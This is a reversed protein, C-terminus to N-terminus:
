PAKPPWQGIEKYYKEAGPHYPTANAEAMHDPKFSRITPAAKVYEDKKERIAKVTKYVVDDPMGAHTVLYVSTETAVVRGKVEPMSPDPTLTVLRMPPMLKKMAAVAAPTDVLSVLRTGGRSALNAAAERSPGIGPTVASVDVKGEGLARIGMVYNPVPFPKMDALSLGATALMAQINPVIASQATYETPMRLGKIDKLEKVPSDNPVMIGFLVQFVVTVVRLNKAPPRGKYDGTAEYAPGTDVVHLVAFDIEGRDLAPVNSSAGATPRVIAPMGQDSMLKAIAAGAAYFSTGQPNTTIVRTQQAFAPASLAICLAALALRSPKM